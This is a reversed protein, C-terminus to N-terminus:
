LMMAVQIRTSGVNRLHVAMKGLQVGFRKRGDDGTETDGVHASETEGPVIAFLQIVFESKRGAQFDDRRSAPERHVENPQAVKEGM